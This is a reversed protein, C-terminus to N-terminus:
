APGDRSCRNFIITVDTAATWLANASKRNLRFIKNSVGGTALNIFMQTHPTRGLWAPRLKVDNMGGAGSATRCTLNM